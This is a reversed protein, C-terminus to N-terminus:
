KRSINVAANFDSDSIHGCGIKTCQYMEGQRSYRDVNGCKSCTISTQYASVRKIFCNNRMKKYDLMRFFAWWGIEKLATLLTKGKSISMEKQDLGEVKITKYQSTIVSSMIHYFNRRLNAIRLDTAASEKIRNGSKLNDSKKKLAGIKEKLMDAGYVDYLKNEACDRDYKEFNRDFLEGGFTNIFKGTLKLPDSFTLTRRMGVDIGITGNLPNCQQNNYEIHLIVFWQDWNKVISVNSIKSISPRMGEFKKGARILIESGQDINAFKITGGKQRDTDMDVFPGTRVKKTKTRFPFKKNFHSRERLELNCSDFVALFFDDAKPQMKKIKSYKISKLELISNIASESLTTNDSLVQKNIEGGRKKKLFDLCINWTTRYIKAEKEFDAKQKPNPYMRIKMTAKM